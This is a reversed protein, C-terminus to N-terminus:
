PMIPIAGTLVLDGNQREITFNVRDGVNVGDIVAGDRVKFTTSGSTIQLDDLGEHAITISSGDNSISEVTGMGRTPGSFAPETDTRPAPPPAPAPPAVTVVPGPVTRTVEPAPVTETVVPGPVTETETVVIPVTQTAAPAPLVTTRETTPVAVVSPQGQTGQIEVRQRAAEPGPRTLAWILLALGGVLIIALSAILAPNAGDHVRRQVVTGPRAVQRGSEDVYVEEHHEEHM